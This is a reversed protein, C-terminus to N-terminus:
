DMKDLCYFNHKKSNVDAKQYEVMENFESFDEETCPHVGLLTYKEVGQINESFFASWEVFNPDHLAANNDGGYAKTM